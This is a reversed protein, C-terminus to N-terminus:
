NPFEWITTLSHRRSRLLEGDDTQALDVLRVIDGVKLNSEGDAEILVAPLADTSHVGSSLTGRTVSLSLQITPGSQSQRRKLDLVAGEVCMGVNTSWDPRSMSWFPECMPRCECFQCNNETATALDVITAGSDILSNLNSLVARATNAEDLVEHKLLPMGIRQGDRRVIVGREIGIGHENCLFAYLRLQRQENPSIQEGDSPAIGSKFDIVERAFTDILDVRGEIQKDHSVLKHEVFFRASNHQTNYEGRVTLSNLAAESQLLGYNPMHNPSSWRARILPHSENFGILACKNFLRKAAEFQEEEDVYQGLRQSEEVVAHFAKGLIVSPSKPFVKRDGQDVWLTRALCATAANYLTPTIKRLPSIKPWFPLKM